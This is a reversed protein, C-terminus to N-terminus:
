RKEKRERYEEVHKTFSTFDEDQSEKSKGNMKYYEETKAKEIEEYSIDIMILKLVEVADLDKLKYLGGKRGVPKEVVEIFGSNKLGRMLVTYTRDHCFNGEHNKDHYMLKSLTRKTIMFVPSQQTFVANLITAFALKLPDKKALLANLMMEARDNDLDEVMSTRYLGITLDVMISKNIWKAVDFESNKM